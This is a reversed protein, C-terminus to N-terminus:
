LACRCYTVRPAQEQLHHGDHDRAGDV